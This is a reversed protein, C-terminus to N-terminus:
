GSASWTGCPGSGTAIGRKEIEADCAEVVACLRGVEQCALVDLSSDLHGAALLQGAIEGGRKAILPKLALAM